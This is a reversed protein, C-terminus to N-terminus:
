KNDVIAFSIVNLIALISQQCYVEATGGMNITFIAQRYCPFTSIHNCTESCDNFMEILQQFRTNITLINTQSQLLSNLAKIM